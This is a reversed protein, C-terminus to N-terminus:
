DMKVTFKIFTLVTVVMDMIVFRKKIYIIEQERLNSLLGVRAIFGIEGPM